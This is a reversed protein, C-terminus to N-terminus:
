GAKAIVAKVQMAVLEPLRRDREAMQRSLSSVQRELNATSLSVGAQNMSAALANQQDRNLVVEGPTLWAPVTDTGPGPKLFPLVRGGGAFRQIGTATVFGGTSVAPAEGGNFGGHDDFNVDVTLSPHVGDLAGQIGGAATAAVGPLGALLTGLDGIATTLKDVAKDLPSKSDDFNFGALTTLKVGSADTLLGLSLMKDLMPKMSEPLASGFHSADKLLDNIKPSMGTLVGSVDAGADVLQDFADQYSHAVTDIHQQQFKPGLQDLSIGLGLATQELAGFDPGQGALNKIADREDDTLGKMDLLSNLAHQLHVPVNVGVAQAAGVIGGVADSVTKATAATDAAKKDQAAFADTLGKVAANYQDANKASLLNQVLTLSGTAEVAHKSLADLGGAADIFSQRVPNIEKESDTFLKKLAFYAGVAAAGVGLTAAGLAVTAGITAGSALASVGVGLATGAVAGLAQGGSGGSVATGIGAGAGLAGAAKVGNATVGSGGVQVNKAISDNLTKAFDAGLKTALSKLAGDLGGGGEFAHSLVTPIEKGLDEFTQLVSHSADQAAEILHTNQAQLGAPLGLSLSATVGYMKKFSAETDKARANMDDFTESILTGAATFGQTINAFQAMSLNLGVLAGQSGELHQQWVAEAEV